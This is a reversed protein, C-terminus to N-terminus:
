GRAAAKGARAGSAMAALWTRPRDAIFDGAIYVREAALSDRCLGGVRDLLPDRAFPWAIAEAQLGFMSGPVALERGEAGIVVGASVSARFGHRPYPPMADSFIAEAPAYVVGGGLVGGIALVVADCAIQAGDELSLTAGAEAVRVSEAWGAMTTVGAAALSRDRAAEFRRGSPSAAPAMAEGCPLGVRESLAAARAREAGLWPPTIVAVCPASRALSGRLADAFWGLRAADDHRAAVEALSMAREDTHKCFVGPLAEFFLNRANAAPLADWSRALSAADWGFQDCPVVGVRGAPLRALDLLAEDHARAGRLIGSAAALLANPADRFGLTALLKTCFADIPENGRAREWPAADVAGFSLSTAGPAGRVLTVEAGQERAALAASVGAIGSGVVVVKM